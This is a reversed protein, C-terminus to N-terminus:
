QNGSGFLDLIDNMNALFMLGLLVLLGISLAYDQIREPLPKRFVAEYAFFFLYGGDLAPIPLLNIFGIQVSFVAILTFFTYWGSEVAKGTIKGMTVLGGIKESGEPAGKFLVINLFKISEDIFTYIKAGAYWMSDFITHRVFLNEESHRLVLSEYNKDEPDLLGDNMESLPFVTFNEIRSHPFKLTIVQEKDMNALLLERNREVDGDTQVGAVNMIEKLQVGFFNTAGVRGHQRRIGKKDLYDVAMSTIEVDFVNDGRQITWVMKSDAIWSTEWVDEFRRLNKGNLKLVKDLPKLGAEHAPTDHAIGYIVAETSKEGASFFMLSLVIWALIFNAIPGMAVILTRQWLPKFCFAEKKEKDTFERLEKKEHDWLKPNDSSSYGFLDVYGGLPILSWSWRTGNEATKGWIERGFGISFKQIRVGFLRATLYHGMEHIFVVFCITIFLAFSYLLVNNAFGQIFEM